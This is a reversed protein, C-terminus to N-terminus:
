GGNGRDFHINNKWYDAMHTSISSHAIPRNDWGGSPSELNCVGTLNCYQCFAQKSNYVVCRNSKMTVNRRCM